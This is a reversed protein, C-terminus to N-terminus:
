ATESSYAVRPLDSGLVERVKWSLQEASFPKQLFNPRALKAAEADADLRKGTYGSM